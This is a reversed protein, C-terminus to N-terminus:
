RIVLSPQLKILHLTFVLIRSNPLHCELVLRQFFFLLFVSMLKYFLCSNAYLLGIYIVSGFMVFM